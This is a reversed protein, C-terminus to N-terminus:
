LEFFKLIYWYIYDRKRKDFWMCLNEYYFYYDIVLDWLMLQGYVFIYNGLFFNYVEQCQGDFFFNNYYWKFSEIM